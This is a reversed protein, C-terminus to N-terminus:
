EENAVGKKFILAFHDTMVKTLNGLILAFVCSFVIAKLSLFDPNIRHNVFTLDIGILKKLFFLNLVLFIEFLLIAKMLNKFFRLIKTFQYHAFDFYISYTNDSFIDYTGGKM